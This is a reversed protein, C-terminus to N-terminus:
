REARTAPIPFTYKGVNTVIGPKRGAQARFLHGFIGMPLIYVATKDAAALREIAPSNGVRSTYIKSILGEKGIASMGYGHEKKDGSITPAIIALNKPSGTEDYRRGIARLVADAAGSTAFGGLGVRMGDKIYTAAEAATIFKSM